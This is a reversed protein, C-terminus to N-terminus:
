GEAPLRLGFEVAIERLKAQIRQVNDPGMRLLQRQVPPLDEIWQESYTYNVSVTEVVMDGRVIPTKLVVAFAMTLVDEFPQEGYGLEQYAEDILPRVNRYTEVLGASDLSVLFDVYTDYRHYSEADIVLRGSHSAVEFREEPRLHPFLRAPSLGEAVNAVVVVAKRVLQETVVFSALVPHASLKEVIARVFDDSTSLPPLVIPAAEPLAETEGSPPAASEAVTSTPAELADPAEGTEDIGGGTLLFYLVIGVVFPIGVVGASVLLWHRLPKGDDTLVPESVASEEPQDINRDEWDSPM